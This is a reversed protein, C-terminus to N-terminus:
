NLDIPRFSSSNELEKKTKIRFKNRKDHQAQRFM